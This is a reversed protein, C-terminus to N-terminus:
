SDLPPLPTPTPDNTEVVLEKQVWGIARQEGVRVFVQYWGDREEFPRIRADAPAFITSSANEDPRSRITVGEASRSRQTKFEPPILAERDHPDRERLYRLIGQTIGSAIRDPENLMMARDSPNTLFGMEVIVSPTTRAVTHTFRYYSFAYYGRMNVTISPDWPLGTATAYENRIADHLQQSARSTRWSTALKFGNTATSTSGDAHISVFADAEYAPPITAPLLDVIIGENQLQAVVRQAISANVETETYEGVIAGVSTRLRALEDPLAETQWHGVQIGVRPLSAKPTTPLPTSTSIATAVASPESTVVESTSTPPLENPWETVESQTDNSSITSSSIDADSTQSQSGLAILVFMIPLVIMLSVGYRQITSRRM